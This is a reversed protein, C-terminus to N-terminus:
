VNYSKMRKFVLIFSLYFIVTDLSVVTFFVRSDLRLAEPEWRDTAKAERPGRNKLTTTEEVHRLPHNIINDIYLIFFARQTHPCEESMRPPIDRNHEWL